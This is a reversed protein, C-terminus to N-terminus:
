CPDAPTCAAWFPVTALPKLSAPLAISALSTCGICARYGITKLSSPLTISALGACGEFARAGLYVVGEPVVLETIEHGKRACCQKWCSRMGTWMAPVKTRSSSSANGM